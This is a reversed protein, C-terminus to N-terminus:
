VQPCSLDWLMLQAQLVVHESHNQSCLCRVTFHGMLWASEARM